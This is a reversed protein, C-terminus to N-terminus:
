RESAFWGGLMPRSKGRALVCERIRRVSHELISLL